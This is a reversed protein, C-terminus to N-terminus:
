VTHQYQSLQERIIRLAREYAAKSAAIDADWQTRIEIQLAMFDDLNKCNIIRENLATIQGTLEWVAEDLMDAESQANVEDDTM